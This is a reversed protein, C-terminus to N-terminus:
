RFYSRLKQQLAEMLHGASSDDREGKRVADIVGKADGEFQVDGLGLYEAVFAFGTLVKVICKAVFVEGEGDRIVVGVGLRQSSVNIAANFNAKLKSDRLKRWGNGGRMTPKITIKDIEGRLREQALKYEKYGTLSIQVVSTPTLFKKEFVYKNRRHWINRMIMTMKEINEIPLKSYMEEWLQLIKKVGVRWKQVPNGMKVWVDSAAPCQQEMHYASRVSFKGDKSNKWILRDEAEVPSIPLSLILDAEDKEFIQRALDVKWGKSSKNILECVRDEAQLIKVQSQVCGTVLKPLWKHSWIRINEGNRVRMRM